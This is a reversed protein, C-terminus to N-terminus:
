LVLLNACRVKPNYGGVYKGEQTKALVVAAGCGDVGRHFAEASWGDRQADYVVKVPREELQTQKLLPRVMLAENTKQDESVSAENLDYTAPYQEPYQMRRDKDAQAYNEDVADLNFLNDFWGYLASTGKKNRAKYHKRHLLISGAHSHAVPGTTLVDCFTFASASENTLMLNELMIITYVFLINQMTVRNANCHYAATTRHITSTRTRTLQNNFNSTHGFNYLRRRNPNYSANRTM